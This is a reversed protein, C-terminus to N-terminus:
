GSTQEGKQLLFCGAFESQSQAEYYGTQSQQRGTSGKQM